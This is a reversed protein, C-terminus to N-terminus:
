GSLGVGVLGEASVGGTFDVSLGAETGGVEFGEGPCGGTFDAGASGGRIVGEM